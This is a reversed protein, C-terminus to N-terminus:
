KVMVADTCEESLKVAEHLVFFEDPDVVSWGISEHMPSPLFGGDFAAKYAIACSDCGPLFATRNDPPREPFRCAVWHGSLTLAAATNVDCRM